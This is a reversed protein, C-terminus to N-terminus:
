KSVRVGLEKKGVVVSPLARKKYHVIVFRVYGGGWESIGVDVWWVVNQM